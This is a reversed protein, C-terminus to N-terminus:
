PRFADPIWRLNHNDGDKADFAVVDFRLPLDAFHPHRALFFQTARMLKQQKHRDVSEAATAFRTTGRSRVEVVVLADADRMVLDLEGLRCRFNRAVVELGRRVLFTAARQEFGTGLATSRTGGM